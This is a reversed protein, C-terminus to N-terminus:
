RTGEVRIMKIKGSSSSLVRVVKALRFPSERAAYMRMASVSCTSTALWGDRASASRLGRARASYM